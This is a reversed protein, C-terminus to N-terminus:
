SMLVLKTLHLNHWNYYSLRIVCDWNAEHNVFVKQCQLQLLQPILFLKQLYIFLIAGYLKNGM